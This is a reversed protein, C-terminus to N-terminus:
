TTTATATTYKVDVNNYYKDSKYVHNHNNNYNDGNDYGHSDDMDHSEEMLGDMCGVVYEDM